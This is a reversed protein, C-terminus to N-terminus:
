LWFKCYISPRAILCIGALPGLQLTAGQNVFHQLYALKIAPPVPMALTRFEADTHAVSYHACREQDRRVQSLRWKACNAIYLPRRFNLAAAVNSDGHLIALPM